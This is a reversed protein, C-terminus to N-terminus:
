QHAHGLRLRPELLRDNVPSAEASARGCMLIRRMALEPRPGRWCSSRWAWISSFPNAPGGGACPLGPRRKCCGSAFDIAELRRSPGPGAPWGYLREQMEREDLDPPLPWSLGAERALRLVKNVAGASLGCSRAIERQTCGCECYLRLIEQVSHMAVRANAM